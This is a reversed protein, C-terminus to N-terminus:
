AIMKESGGAPLSIVGTRDDYSLLGAYRAWDILQRLGRDIDSDPYQRHLDAAIEASHMRRHPHAAVKGQILKVLPISDALQDAFIARRDQGSAGAYRSGLPTLEVKGDIFKTLGLRDLLELLALLSSEDYGISEGLAQLGIQGGSGNRAITSVLGAIEDTSVMPCQASLYFEDEILSRVAGM